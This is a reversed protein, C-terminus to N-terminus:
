DGMRKESSIENIMGLVMQFAKVHGVLEMYKSQNEIGSLIQEGLAEATEEIWKVLERRFDEDAHNM